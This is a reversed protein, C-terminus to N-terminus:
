PNPNQTTPESNLSSAADQVRFESGQVRTEGERYIWRVLEFPARRQALQSQEEPARYVQVRVQVLSLRELPELAIAYNWETDDGIPADDVSELPEIGALLEGLKNQCLRAATASDEARELHLRGVHALQSLVALSGFLMGTAILVELLSIGRRTPRM